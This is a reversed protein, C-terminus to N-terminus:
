NYVKVHKKDFINLLIHLVIVFLGISSVIIWCIRFSFSEILLGMLKQFFAECIQCSILGISIIRGRHAAPIRKSLYSKQNIAAFVEGITLAFMAVFYWPIVGQIFIYFGFGIVIFVEGILIKKVDQIKKFVVSILPTTIIVLLSNFTLLMGFLSAGSSGYLFEMNLPMLLNMQTYLIGAGVNCVLALIVIPRKLLVQFTSLNEQKLDQNLNLLTDNSEEKSTDKIFCLNIVLSIFVNIVCILYAFKLYNEFLLGGFFAAFVATINGLLYNMSFVKERQKVVTLDSLLADYCPMEMVFFLNAVIYLFVTTSSEPILFCGLWCFMIIFDFYLILYRKNILDALKGSILVGPINILSMQLMLNGIELSTYDLKNKLIMPFLMSIMISINSIMRCLLLLYTEKRLGKLKKYIEVM